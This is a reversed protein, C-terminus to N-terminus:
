ARINATEAQVERIKATIREYLSEKEGIQKNLRAIKEKAEGAELVSESEAKGKRSEIVESQKKLAITNENEMQAKETKYTIRAVSIGQELELIKQELVSVREIKDGVQTEHKSRVEEFAREKKSIEADLEVVRRERQTVSQKAKVAAALIPKIHLVPRLWIEMKSLENFAQEDSYELIDGNAM